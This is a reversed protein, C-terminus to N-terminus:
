ELEVSFKGNTVTKTASSSGAAVVLTASFTGTVHTSTLSTITVTASHTGTYDVVYVDTLSKGGNTAYVILPYFPATHHTADLVYTGTTIATPSFEDISIGDTTASADHLGEIPLSYFTSTNHFGASDNTNFTEDTGDITATITDGPTGDVHPKVAASKNCSYLTLAAFAYFLLLKKM